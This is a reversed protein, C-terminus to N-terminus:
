QHDMKEHQRFRLMWELVSRVAEPEPFLVLLALLFHPGLFGISLTGQIGLHFLVGATIVWPRVCPIFLLVPAFLEYLITGLAGTRAALPSLWGSIWIGLPTAWRGSLVHFLVDGSVWSANTMKTLGAFFYVQAFELQILRCVFAGHTRTEKGRKRLADLSLAAGSPTFLLLTLVVILISHIAKQDIGDEEVLITFLVLVCANAWRTFLGLALGLAAVVLAASLVLAGAASLTPLACGPLRFGDCSFLERTHGLWTCAELFILLGVGARYVAIPEVPIERHLAGELRSLSTRFPSLLGRVPIV